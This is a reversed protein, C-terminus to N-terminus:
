GFNLKFNEKQPLLDLKVNQRLDEAVSALGKQQAPFGSKQIRINDELVDRMKDKLNGKETNIRHSNYFNELLRVAFDHQFARVVTETNAEIASTYDNEVVFFVNFASFFGTKRHKSLDLIDPKDTDEEKFLCPYAEFNKCILAPTERQQILFVDGVLDNEFFGIYFKGGPNLAQKFYSLILPRRNTHGVDKWVFKNEDETNIQIEFDFIPEYQSTHYGYFKLKQAKSVKLGIKKIGLIRNKLPPLVFEIGRFGQAPPIAQQTFNESFLPQALKQLKLKQASANESILNSLFTYLCDSYQRRLFASLDTEWFASDFAPTENTNDVRCVFIQNDFNAAEGARYAKAAQYDQYHARRVPDLEDAMDFIKDAKLFSGGKAVAEIKVPGQILDPHLKPCCPLNSQRFGVFDLLM